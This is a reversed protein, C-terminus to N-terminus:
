STRWWVAQPLDPDHRDDDLVREIPIPIRSRMTWVYGDGSFGVLFAVICVWRRVAPTYAACSSPGAPDTPRLGADSM